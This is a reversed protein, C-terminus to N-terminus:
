IPVHKAESSEPLGFDEDEERPVGRGRSVKNVGVLMMLIAEEQPFYM